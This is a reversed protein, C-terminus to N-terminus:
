VARRAIDLPSCRITTPLLTSVGSHDLRGTGSSSPAAACKAPRFTGGM